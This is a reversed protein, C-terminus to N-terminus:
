SKSDCQLDEMTGTAHTSSGRERDVWKGYRAGRAWIMARIFNRIPKGKIKEM